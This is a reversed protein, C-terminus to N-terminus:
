KFTKAKILRYILKKTRGAQHRETISVLRSGIRKVKPLVFVYGYDFDDELNHWSKFQLFLNGSDPAKIPPMVLNMNASNAYNGTLNTGYVKEGSAATNPGTSPVGWEWNNNTGSAVWGCPHLKM